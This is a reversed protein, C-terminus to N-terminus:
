ESQASDFPETTSKLVTSTEPAPELGAGPVREVPPATPKLTSGDVHGEVSRQFPWLVVVRESGVSLHAMVAVGLLITVPFMQAFLRDLSTSLWWTVEHPGLAYIVMYGCAVAMLGLALVGVGDLFGSGAGRRRSSVLALVTGTATIPFVWAYSGPWILASWFWRGVEEVRFLSLNQWRIGGVVDNSPVYATFLGNLMAAPAMGAVLAVLVRPRTRLSRYTMLVLAGIWAVVYLLGENKTLLTAGLLLGTVGASSVSRAHGLGHRGPSSWVAMAGMFVMGLLVDCCQDTVRDLWHPLLAMLLLVILAATRGAVRRAWDFLLGTAGVLVCLQVWMPALCSEVGTLRYGGAIAFPVAPPYDPHQQFAGAPPLFPGFFAPDLLISKARLNYMAIADIMGEPRLGLRLVLTSGGVLVVASALWAFLRGQHGEPSVGYPTWAPTSAAYTRVVWCWGALFIVAAVWTAVVPRPAVDGVVSAMAVAFPAGLLTLFVARRDRRWGAFWAPVLALSLLVSFAWFNSGQGVPPSNPRVGAKRGWTAVALPKRPHFSVAEFGLGALESRVAGHQRGAGFAVVTVPAAREVVWSPTVTRRLRAVLMEYPFGDPAGELALWGVEGENHIHRELWKLDGVTSSSPWGVVAARWQASSVDRTLRYAASLVAM